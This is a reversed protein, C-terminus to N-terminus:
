VFLCGKPNNEYCHIDPHYYAIQGSTKLHKFILGAIMPILDALDSLTIERPLNKRKKCLDDEVEEILPDIDAYSFYITRASLEEITNTPKREWYELIFKNFITSIGTIIRPFFDKYFTEPLSSSCGATILYEKTASEYLKIDNPLEAFVTPIQYRKNQNNVFCYHDEYFIKNFELISHQHSKINESFLEFNFGLKEAVEAIEKFHKPFFAIATQLAEFKYTNTIAADPDFWELDVLGIKGVGKKIYLTCNDYRAIETNCLAPFRPQILRDLYNQLLFSTFEKAAETFLGHNREYLSVQEKTGLAKLPLKEEILYDKLPFAEPVVLHQYGQKQCIKRVQEMKKLRVENYPSGCHKLVMPVDAPLYVPTKGFTAKSMRKLWDTHNIFMEAILKTLRLDGSFKFDILPNSKSALSIPANAISSM